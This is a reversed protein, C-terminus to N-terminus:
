FYERENIKVLRIGTVDPPSSSAHSDESSITENRFLTESEEDDDDASGRPYRKPSKLPINPALEKSKGKKGGGDEKEVDVRGWESPASDTVSPFSL